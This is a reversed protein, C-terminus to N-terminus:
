INLPCKVQVAATKRVPDGRIGFRERHRLCITLGLRVENVEFIGKFILFFFVTGLM